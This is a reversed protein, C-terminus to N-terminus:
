AAAHDFVHPEPVERSARLPAVDMIYGVEGEVEVGAGFTQTQVVDAVVLEIEGFLALQRRGADVRVKASLPCKRRYLPLIRKAKLPPEASVAWTFVKGRKQPQSRQCAAASLHKQAACVSALVALVM